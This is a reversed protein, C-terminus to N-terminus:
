AQTIPMAASIVDDVDPLPQERSRVWRWRVVCDSDLVFVSRMPMGAYGEVDERRTGWADMVKREFDAVLPFPLGGLQEAFALHSYVSDV